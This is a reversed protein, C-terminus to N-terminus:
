KQAGQVLWQAVKASDAESISQSPMPIQGYVGQGGNKIKGSLYAQSDARKGQKAAIEKFSPGVLKTDMGHCVICAYKQLTPMVDASKLAGATAM